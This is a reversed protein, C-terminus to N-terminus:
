YHTGMSKRKFPMMLHITLKAVLLLFAIQQQKWFLNEELYPWLKWIVAANLLINRTIFIETKLM